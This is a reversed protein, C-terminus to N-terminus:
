VELKEAFIAGDDYFASQANQEERKTDRIKTNVVASHVSSESIDRLSM